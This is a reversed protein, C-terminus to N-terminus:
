RTTRGVTGMLDTKLTTLLRSDVGLLWNDGDKFQADTRVHLSKKDPTFRVTVRLRYEFNYKGGYSYLWDTRIYGDEKFVVAVDFDKILIDFVMDWAHQFDVDSRLEFVQWQSTEGRLFSKPPGALAAVPGGVLTSILFFLLYRKM